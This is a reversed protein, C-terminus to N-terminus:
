RAIQFAYLDSNIVIFRIAIPTKKSIEALTKVTGDNQKWAVAYRLKDHASLESCDREFGPVVRGEGDLLEVKVTGVRLDANVLLKEGSFVFVKTELLSESTYIIPHLAVFRDAPLTALGLGYNHSDIHIRRETALAGIGTKDARSEGHRDNTAFYHIRVEDDKVFFNSTPHFTYDWAREAFPKPEESPMFVARDAVRQWNRGDRSAMLQVDFDGVFNNGDEPIMHMMVLLGILVDGYASVCLAHAQTWPYGDMEDTAFVQEKATWHAFDKSTCLGTSRFVSNVWNKGTHRDHVITNTEPGQYRTYNLYEGKWRVFSNTTDNKGTADIWNQKVQDSVSWHVGDASCASYLGKYLRAPDADQRDLFACRGLKDFGIVNNERHSWIPETGIMPKDWRIGDKSEAYCDCFRPAGAPSTGKKHATAMYWAKFLDAQDDYVVSTTIMYWKEWGQDNIMVPNNPHRTPQKMERQLNSMRGIMYDDLFLQPHNSLEIPEAGAVEVTHAPAVSDVIGFGGVSGRALRFRIAAPQEVNNMILYGGRMRNMCWHVEYWGVRSETVEAKAEEFGAIVAGNVDILEATLDDASFLEANILLHDGSFELPVTQLVGGASECKPALVEKCSVATAGNVRRELGSMTAVLGNDSFWQVEDSIRVAVTDM